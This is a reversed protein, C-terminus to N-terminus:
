AGGNGTTAGQEGGAPLAPPTDPGERREGDEVAHADVWGRAEMARLVDDASRVESIVTPRGQLKLMNETAVGGITVLNRASAAADRVDNGQIRQLELDVAARTAGFAALALERVAAVVEREIQAQHKEVLARYRNPYTEKRWKGLTAASVKIPPDMQALRASTETANATMALLLLATEVTQATTGKAHGSVVIPELDSM